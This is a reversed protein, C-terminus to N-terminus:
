TMQEAKHLFKCTIQLHYCHSLLNYKLILHIAHLMSANYMKYVIYIITCIQTKLTIPHKKNKKNLLFVNKNNIKSLVFLYSCFM